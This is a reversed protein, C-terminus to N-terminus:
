AAKEFKIKNRGAVVRISQVTRDLASAVDEATGGTAAIERMTELDEETYKVAKNVAMDPTKLANKGLWSKLGVVNLSLEEAIQEATMGAEVRAKVVAIVEETYIKSKAPAKERQPATLKLSLLKGRVSRVSKNVATAIDEIFDGATAMDLVLATEEDTFKKPAEEKETKVIVLEKMLGMSLAKGQVQKATKNLAAAIEVNTKGAGVMARLTEAEADAWKQTPASKKEVTAGLARLKAAVSRVSKNLQEALEEVQAYSVEDGVLANLVEVESDQWNSM